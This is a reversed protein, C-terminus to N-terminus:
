IVETEIVVQKSETESPTATKDRHESDSDIIVPNNASLLEILWNPTSPAVKLPDTFDWSEAYAEIDECRSVSHANLVSFVSEKSILRWEVRCASDNVSCRTMKWYVWKKYSAERGNVLGAMYLEKLIRYARDPKKLILDALGNKDIADGELEPIHKLADLAGKSVQANTTPSLSNYEWIGLEVDEPTALLVGNGNADSFWVRQTQRILTITKIIHSLKPFNRRNSYNPFVFADKPIPILVRRNGSNILFGNIKRADEKEPDNYNKLLFEKDFQYDFVRKDQEESENPNALLLRNLMQGDKDRLPEVSNFWIPCNQPLPIKKTTWINKKSDKEVTLHNSKTNDLLSRIIGMKKDDKPDITMESWFLIAPHNNENFWYFLSTDSNSSVSMKVSEPFLEFVAEASHTKGKGSQGICYLSFAGKDSLNMSHGSLYYALLIATDGVHGRQAVKLSFEIPDNKKLFELADEIM